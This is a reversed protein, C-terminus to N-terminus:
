LFFVHFTIAGRLRWYIALPPILASTVIMELVHSPAHSTACLRQLCFRATLALWLALAVLALLWIGALGALIALMLANLIMYYRWPPASQIRQRYLAPHKKYLLANYMSKRQQGLSVGWPARRVPHTVIADPAKVLCVGQESLRFSLDSDERWAVRFREDFGRTADLVNRRYFCNATAFEAGELHAANLEYDTPRPPLPVTLRGTAGAIDPDRLARLGATLWEPAPLCDDDTFAIIPAHAARWGRNRAAAPGHAGTGTMPLYRLTYGASAVREAWTQVQAQTSAESADDVVIIEYATPCLTQALLADLCKDLLAARRCTPVVVSVEISM